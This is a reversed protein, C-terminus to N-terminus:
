SGYERSSRSGDWRWTGAEGVAVFFSEQGWWRLTEWASHASEEAEYCLLGQTGLSKVVGRLLADAAM